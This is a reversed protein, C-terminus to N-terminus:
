KVRGSKLDNIEKKLREVEATLEEIEADKAPLWVADRELLDSKLRECEQIWLEAQKAVHLREKKLHEVQETLKDNTEKAAHFYTDIEKQLKDREATLDQIKNRNETALEQHSRVRKNSAELETTLDQNKKILIERENALFSTRKWQDFDIQLHRKEESLNRYDNRANALQGKLEEVQKAWKTAGAESENEIWRRLDKFLGVRHNFYDTRTGFAKEFREGIPKDSYHKDWCSDCIGFVKYEGENIPTGCGACHFEAEKQITEETM